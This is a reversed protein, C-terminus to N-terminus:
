KGEKKDEGDTLLNFPLIKQVNEAKAQTRCVIELIEKVGKIFPEANVWFKSLAIGSDIFFGWFKDFDSMRKHLERQLAELKKLMRFRHDEEFDESKTLLERLRDLLEQVRGFDDDSFEYSVGKGFLHAYQQKAGEYTDIGKRARLGLEKRKNWQKFFDIIILINKIATLQHNLQPVAIKISNVSYFVEAFALADLYQEYSEIMKKQDTACPADCEFFRDCIQASALLFDDPLKKIFEDDFM